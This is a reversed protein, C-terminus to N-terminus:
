RVESMKKRNSKKLYSEVEKNIVLMYCYIAYLLLHNWIFNSYNYLSDLHSPKIKWISISDNIETTIFKIDVVEIQHLNIM